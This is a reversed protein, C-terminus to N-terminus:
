WTIVATIFANSVQTSDGHFMGSGSVVCLYRCPNQLIKDQMELVPGAITDAPDRGSKRERRRWVRDGLLHRLNQDM